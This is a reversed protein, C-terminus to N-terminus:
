RRESLLAVVHPLIREVIREIGRANPHMGDAQNFARDAAVGDLFFPYFGTGHKAAVHNFGAAFRVGYDRGLNPPAMMGALLVPIRAKRLEGVIADLNAETRAPDLARLGDNAGLCVIAHTPREALVWNLRRLGGATTDGSVAGEIVTVNKGAKTLARQLTQSFGQEPPLGYGSMLSDGFLLLRVPAEQAVVPQAFALLLLLAMSWGCKAWLRTGLRTGPNVLM